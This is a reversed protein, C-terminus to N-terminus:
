IVRILLMLLNAVFILVLINGIGDLSYSLCESIEKDNKVTKAVSAYSFGAIIFLFTLIFVFWSFRNHLLQLLM